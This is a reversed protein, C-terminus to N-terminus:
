AIEYVFGNEVEDDDDSEDDEEKEADANGVHDSKHTLASLLKGGIKELQEVHVSTDHGEKVDGGSRAAGPKLAKCTVSKNLRIKPPRPLPPPM